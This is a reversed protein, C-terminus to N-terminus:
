PLINGYLRKNDLIEIQYYMGFVVGIGPCTRFTGLTSMPEFEDILEHKDLNTRITNCRWCPGSSRMLVPGVRLENFDDERWAETDIM